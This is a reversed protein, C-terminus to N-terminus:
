FGKYFMEPLKTRALDLLVDIEFESISDYM